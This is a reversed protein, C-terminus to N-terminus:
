FHLFFNVPPCISPRVGSLFYDLNQTVNDTTTKGNKNDSTENQRRDMNKSKFEDLERTKKKLDLEITNQQLSNCEDDWTQDFSKEHKRTSM